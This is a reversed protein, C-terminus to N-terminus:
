HYDYYDFNLSLGDQPAVMSSSDVIRTTTYPFCQQLYTAFNEFLFHKLLLKFNDLTPAIRVNRPLGNWLRPGLYSFSRRGMATCPRFVSTKLTMNLASQIQLKSALMLPAMNNVCKYVIVMLKFHCREEVPLWHLDRLHQSTHAHHPLQLVLRMASNQLVQLKSINAQSMGVFLSNCQDLRNTILAHVFKEFTSSSM